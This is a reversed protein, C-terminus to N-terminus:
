HQTEFTSRLLDYCPLNAARSWAYLYPVTDMDLPWIELSTAFIFCWDWLGKVELPFAEPVSGDAHGKPLGSHWNSLSAHGNALATHGNGNLLEAPREAKGTASRDMSYQQLGNSEVHTQEELSALLVRLLEHKPSRCM